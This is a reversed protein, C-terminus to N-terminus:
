CPCRKLHMSSLFPLHWDYQVPWCSFGYVCGSWHGPYFDLILKINFLFVIIVQLPLIFNAILSDISCVECLAAIAHCAERGEEETPFATFATGYASNDIELPEAECESPDGDEDEVESFDYEASVKGALAKLTAGSVSPWGSPTYIDVNLRCGISNLKIDRLKSPTKKGKEIVKDVNPVKFIKETPIAENQNKRYLTAPFIFSKSEHYVHVVEHYVDSVL